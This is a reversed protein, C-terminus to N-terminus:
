TVAVLMSGLFDFGLTDDQGHAWSWSLVMSLLKRPREVIFLLLAFFAYLLKM